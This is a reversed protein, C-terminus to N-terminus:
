KREPGPSAYLTGAWFGRNWIQKKQKREWNSILDIRTAFLALLLPYMFSFKQMEGALGFSLALYLIPSV